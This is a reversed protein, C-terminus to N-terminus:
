AKPRDFQPVKAMEPQADTKVVEASKVHRHCERMWDTPHHVKLASPRLHGVFRASSKPIPRGTTYAGKALDM